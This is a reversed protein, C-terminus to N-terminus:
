KDKRSMLAVCEVHHTQPFMDVPQVNGLKYGAAVFKSADRAFTAPNCSVYVIKEPAAEIVINVFEEDLGKRPPDVVVVNPELGAHIWEKMVVDAMGLEFTVNDVQNMKANGRAMEVADAVSEVAYVHRAKQALSLSITGIGSFADIVTETGQLDALDLAAHYLKEAQPTNIQFFSRSSIKFTFDFMKDEYTDDGYLVRQTDGMIVNTRSTNSNLVVSVIQPDSAVIDAVIAEENPLRKGNVVLVVMFQNTYYGRRILVNRILGKHSREDYNPIHFKNLVAVIKQLLDDIGPLQIQFNAMPIIDHSNKRYFGTYLEGAKGGIPVQAKNRYEWPNEMGITPLVEIEETLLGLKALANIVQQQKFQLQAEYTMHQLPMTGTRLGNEDRLAVRMASDNLRKVVKGFGFSKKVKIVRVLVREGPLANTVFIPYNDVKAVGHGEYSLDIIDMELEDNKAVPAKFEKKNM